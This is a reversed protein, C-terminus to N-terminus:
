FTCIIARHTGNKIATMIQGFTLNSRIYTRRGAVRATPSHEPLITRNVAPSSAAVRGFAQSVLLFQKSQEAVPVCTTRTMKFAFGVTMTALVSILTLM